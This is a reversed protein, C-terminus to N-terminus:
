TLAVGAAALLVVGAVVATLYHQVRGRQLLRSAAGLGSVARGAGLVYGQVVEDDGTAVLRALPRLPRVFLDDYLQDVGFASAFVPRVGGLAVAPDQGTSLWQKYVLYGGAVALLLSAAITLFGM